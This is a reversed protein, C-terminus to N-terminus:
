IHKSKADLAQYLDLLHVWFFLVISVHRFVSQQQRDGVARYNKKRARRKGV